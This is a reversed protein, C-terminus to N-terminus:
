PTVLLIISKMIEEEQSEKRDQERTKELVDNGTRGLVMNEAHIIQLRNADRLLAKLGNPADSEGRKLVYANQQIDTALGLYYFGVDCHLLDGAQILNRKEEDDYRQGNAQIDISPHFWAQLGLDLIKQRMWWAVDETMTVGPHIVKGSFAESVIAQTIEVLGPYAELEEETRYELWGIALKEAGRTRRMYKPDLAKELNQYESYTLGDGFGSTHSVNIGISHPNRETVIKALCKYQEETDPNWVAEYFDGLKYRSVTLCEVSNGKLTYVLITRRRAAMQPEPLLSMIVPDENYERAIVIWMDFGERVMISPLVNELRNKLWRNMVNARKRLSLIISRYNDALAGYNPKLSATM